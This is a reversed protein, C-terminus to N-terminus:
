LWGCYIQRWPRRYSEARTAPVRKQLWSRGQRREPCPCLRCTDDASTPKPGGLRARVRQRGHTDTQLEDYGGTFVLAPSRAGLLKATSNSRSSLRSQIAASPPSIRSGPSCRSITRGG